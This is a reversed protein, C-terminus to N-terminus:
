EINQVQERIKEAQSKIEVVRRSIEYDNAKASITNVERNVEQLIFDLKRGVAGGQELAGAFAQVHSDLRVLEESISSKEAFLVVEMLLRDEQLDQGSLLKEAQERLRQRYEEVVRPALESIEGVYGQILALRERLDRALGKGEEERSGTLQGVADLLAGELHPWLDDPRYDGQSIFIDPLRALTSVATDDKVGMGALEQLAKLYGLAMDRDLKVPAGEGSLAELSVFADVRGRSVHQQLVKRVKEELSSIERPIRLSIDRYRHNVTKIEVAIRAREGERDGRGYGTMSRVM